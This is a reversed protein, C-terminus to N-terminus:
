SAQFSKTHHFAHRSRQGELIKFLGVWLRVADKKWFVFYIHLRRQQRCQLRCIRNLWVLLLHRLRLWEERDHREEQRQCPHAHLGCQVRRPSKYVLSAYRTDQLRRDTSYYTNYERRLYKNGAICPYVTGFPPLTSYKSERLFNRRSVLTKMSYYDLCGRLGKIVQIVDQKM